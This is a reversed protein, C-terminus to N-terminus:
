QISINKKILHKKYKPRKYQSKFQQKLFEFVRAFIKVRTIINELINRKYSYGTSALM